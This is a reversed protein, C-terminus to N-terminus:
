DSVRRDLQKEMMIVHVRREGPSLSLKPLLVAVVLAM